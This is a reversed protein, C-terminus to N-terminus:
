TTIRGLAHPANERAGAPTITMFQAKRQLDKITAAGCYTMGSRIGGMVDRIVEVVSGRLPVEVAIGEATKWDAMSGMFDEQAEKSAMGRFVKVAQQQGDPATRYRVEGPTEETGALMGGLMVFDAGAALAKVADGPTRIGGDAILSRDVQRCMMIATLQPVGFGTKIRTTCVSGGGIGVKIVDAGAAALYDAGAYTAVNGAIVVINDRFKKKLTRITQNVAKAHGHAVDLCIIVAGEAILAEARELGADGVGISVGVREKDVARRFEEVTQEITMFRHLIGLGGQKAMANAMNIGTITDMNSSIVPIDFRIKGMRVETTVDQRSRIGNYNPILLVDDFTLGQILNM